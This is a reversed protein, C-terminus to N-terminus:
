GIAHKAYIVPPNAQGVARLIFGMRIATMCLFKIVVSQHPAEQNLLFNELNNSLGVSKLITGIIKEL